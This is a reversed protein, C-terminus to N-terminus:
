RVQTLSINGTAPLDTDTSYIRYDDDARYTTSFRGFTDFTGTRRVSYVTTGRRRFSMTFAHGPEGLVDVTVLSGRRVTSPSATRPKLRAGDPATTCATGAEAYWDYPADALYDTTFRGTSDATLSRRQTWATTGHRRFYVRITAERDAQGILPVRSAALVVPNPGHLSQVCQDDSPTVSRDVVAIQVQFLRDPRGFCCPVQTQWTIQTRGVQDAHFSSRVSRFGSGAEVAYRFLPPGAAAVTVPDDGCGAQVVVTDGRQVTVGRGHDANTITRTGGAYGSSTPAPCPQESGYRPMVPDPVQVTVSWSQATYACPISEVTCPNTTRSRLVAQQEVRLDASTGAASATAQHTVVSTSPAPVDWIDGTRQPQLDIHVETGSPLTITRGDDAVTLTVTATAASATASTLRVGQSTAAKTGPLTSASAPPAETLPLPDAPLGAVVASLLAVAPVLRLWSM